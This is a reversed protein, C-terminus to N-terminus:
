GRKPGRPAGAGSKGYYSRMAAAVTFDWSHIPYERFRAAPVYRREAEEVTAGARMMKEAHAHLDDFLDRQDRVNELGCVAGHGPVFRTKADYGAFKDLVARWAIMDADLSVPYSRNFLLDGAFVFDREPVRVILDTPTHGAHFEIVATVGGLDIRKPMEAGALSETPFALKAADIADYMWKWTALDVEKRKRDTEDAAAAIRKEFPALLPAKDRGQLAGYQEKMMPLAKEHALIPIGQEAYAPNGFTHDLHFHTDVAGRIPAKSVMRALEIELAAGAPEMHGEVILVADRGAIVGGNSSCQSGKSPDAITVYLGPALHTVRAFGRDLVLAAGRQQAFLTRGAIGAALFQRRNWEM